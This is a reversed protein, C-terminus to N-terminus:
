STARRATNRASCTPTDNGDDHAKEWAKEWQDIADNLTKLKGNFRDTASQTLSYRGLNAGRDM